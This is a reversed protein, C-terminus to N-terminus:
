ADPGQIQVSRVHPFPCRTWTRQLTKRRHPRSRFQKTCLCPDQSQSEEQSSAEHGRRHHSDQRHWTQQIDASISSSASLYRVPRFRYVSPFGTAPACHVQRSKGSARKRTDLHQFLHASTPRHANRPRGAAAPFSASRGEFGLQHGPASASPCHPEISLSCQIAPDAGLWHLQHPLM